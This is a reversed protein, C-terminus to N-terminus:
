NFNWLKRSVLTVDSRRLLLRPLPARLVIPYCIMTLAFRVMTGTLVSAAVGIIQYRQILALCLSVSVVFQVSTLMTVTGPRGVSTMAQSLVRSVGGVVTDALLLWVMVSSPVFGPGYVLGILEGGGFGILLAPVLAIALNIRAARQVDEVVVDLSQGVVRPFLVVSISQQVLNLMRCLSAIVVYVGIVHPALFGAILIQDAFGVLVTFLDGPYYRLGFHLLTHASGRFDRFKPRAVRIAYVIGFISAPTGTLAYALAVTVSGINDTLYLAFLALVTLLVTALALVNELAFKARADIVGQAAYFVVTGPVTLMLLQSCLIARHDFHRLWFPLAVAGFGAALAGSTATLLLAAAFLRSEERPNSRVHFLLSAPIGLTVCFPIMQTWSIIAAQEGKAAPGLLRASVIGTLVNIGLIFTRVIMTQAAAASTGRGSLLLAMLSRVRRWLGLRSGARSVNDISSDSTTV